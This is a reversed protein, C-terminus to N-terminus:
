YLTDLQLLRNQAEIALPTTEPVLELVTHLSRKAEKYNKMSEHVKALVSHLVAARPQKKLHYHLLNLAPKYDGTVIYLSSMGHVATLFDPNTELSQKFYTNAKKYMKQHFYVRGLNYLPIEPTAYLIDQLVEQFCKIALDWKKQKLYAAGLNNKAQTYDKKIKVAKKFYNEALKYREKALYVLGLSNNLDPDNPITKQAELLTKLAATYQGINYYGDGLERNAVALKKEKQPDFNQSACSILFLSIFFISFLNKM